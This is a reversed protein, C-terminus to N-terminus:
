PSSVVFTSDDYRSSACAIAGDIDQLQVMAAGNIGIRRGRSTVAATEEFWVDSFKALAVQGKADYFDEVIWEADQGCLRPGNSITLVMMYGRQANTIVVKGSTPSSTTINVSIWDGAKVPLGNITYASDPYWEWWASASQGGNSNVITTVGAQLLAQKCSAGDIGVWAAAFQPAPVNSRLTLSPATFYGFVNTIPDSLTSHQSAGCWNGSYSVSDREARPRVRLPPAHEHHQRPPIPVFEIDSIDVDEGRQQATASFSLEGAATWTVLSTVLFSRVISWM